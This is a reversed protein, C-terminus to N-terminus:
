NNACIRNTFSLMSISIGDKSHNILYRKVNEFDWTCYFDLFNMVNSHKKKCVVVFHCCFFSIFTYIWNQCNQLYGLVMDDDMGVGSRWASPALVMCALLSKNSSTNCFDAKCAAM